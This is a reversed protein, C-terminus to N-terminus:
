PHPILASVRDGSIQILGVEQLYAHRSNQSVYDAMYSNMYVKWGHLRRQAKPGEGERTFHIQVTEAREVLLLM